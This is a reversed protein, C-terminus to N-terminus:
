KIKGHLIPSLPKYILFTIITLAAGKILNFPVTFPLIYKEGNPVDGSWKAFVNPADPTATVTATGGEPVWQEVPSVLGGAGATATVKYSLDWLWVLRGGGVAPHVYSFSTTDGEAYLVGNTYVRYGACTAATGQAANTWAAPAVCVFSDGAALGNTIGYAPFVDAIECAAGSLKQGAVTLNDSKEPGPALDAGSAKNYYMKRNVTDYLGARGNGDTCPVFDRVLTAGEYMKCSHIAMSCPYTLSTTWEVRSGFLWMTQKSTATSGLTNTTSFLVGDLYMAGKALDYVHRGTDVAVGTPSSKWNGSVFVTFNQKGDAGFLFAEAGGSSGWGCYASATPISPFRFDCVVRTNAKPYIDTDIYQTGTSEVYDLETYGDPLTAAQVASLTAMALFLATITRSKM